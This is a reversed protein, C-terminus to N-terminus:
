TQGSDDDIQGFPGVDEWTQGMDTSGIIHTGDGLGNYNTFFIAGSSTIGLTPEFTDFGTGYYTARSYFTLVIESFDFAISWLVADTDTADVAWRESPTGPLPVM